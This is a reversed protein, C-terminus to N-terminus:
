LLILGSHKSETERRKENEVEKSLNNKLEKQFIKNDTVSHAVAAM